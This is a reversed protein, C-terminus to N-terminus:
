YNRLKLEDAVGYVTKLDEIIQPLDEIKVVGKVYNSSSKKLSFSKEFSKKDDWDDFRISIFIKDDSAVLSDTDVKENTFQKVNKVLTPNNNIIEKQEEETCTMFGFEGFLKEAIKDAKKIYILEAVEDSKCTSIGFEGFLEEANSNVEDWTTKNNISQKKKSENLFSNFNKIKM